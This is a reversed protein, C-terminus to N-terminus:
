IIEFFAWRLPNLAEEYDILVTVLFIFTKSFLELNLFFLAGVDKKSHSKLINNVVLTSVFGKKRGCGEWKEAKGSVNGIERLSYM